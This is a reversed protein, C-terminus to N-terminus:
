PVLPPGQRFDESPTRPAVPPRRNVIARALLPAAFSTGIVRVIEGSHSGRVSLGPLARSTDAPASADPAIRRGNGIGAAPGAGSYPSPARDPQSVIYAGVVVISGREGKVTALGSLAGRRRIGNPPADTPDEDSRRLYRQPNHQEDWDIFDAQRGRPLAGPNRQNRSVWFRVPDALPVATEAEFLLQFRWRGARAVVRNPEASATPAFAILTQAIGDPRPKTSVVGCEPRAASPWGLAQGEGISGADGNPPTVQLRIGKSDHPWRVTVYQPTECGPPLFFELHDSGDSLIAHRQEENTNGTPIVITLNRKKGTMEDIESDALRLLASELLSKGDHTTRSTGSSINVVIRQGVSAHDLIYRLGDLIYRSLAASTSDQTGARPMQVFVLEAHDIELEAPSGGDKPHLDDWSPPKGPSPQLAGGFLSPAFLQSVVAAGHSFREDLADYDVDRYCQEEDLTGQFSATAMAENLADRNIACGYDQREPRFSGKTKTFAPRDDQDWISLVRTGKGTADRLMKAAFPCGSDIVGVLVGAKSPVPSGAAPLAVPRRLRPREPVVPEALEIRLIRDRVTKWREPTLTETAFATAPNKPEKWEVVFRIGSVPDLGSPGFDRYKTADAWVWM